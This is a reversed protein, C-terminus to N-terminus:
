KAFYIYIAVVILCIVLGVQKVYKYPEISVQKTYKLEFPTKMPKLKGILLMIGANLLFLIAMVHLYHPYAEAEIM